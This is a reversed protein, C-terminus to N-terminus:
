VLTSERYEKERESDLPFAAVKLLRCMCSCLSLEDESSSDTDPLFRVWGDTVGPSSQSRSKDVRCYSTAQTEIQTSLFKSRTLKRLQLSGQPKM